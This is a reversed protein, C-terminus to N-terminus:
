CVDRNAGKRGGTTGTIGGRGNREATVDHRDDRTRPLRPRVRKPALTWVMVFFFASFPLFYLHTADAPFRLVTLASLRVNFRSFKGFGPSASVTRHHIAVALKVV